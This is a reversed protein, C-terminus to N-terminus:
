VKTIAATAATLDAGGASETPSCRDDSRRCSSAEGSGSGADAHWLCETSVLLLYSYYSLNRQM